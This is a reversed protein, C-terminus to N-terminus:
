TRILSSTAFYTFHQFRYFNICAWNLYKM